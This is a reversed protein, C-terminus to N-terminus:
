FPVTMPDDDAPGPRQDAHHVDNPITGRGLRGPEYNLTQINIEWVERTQGTRPDDYKRQVIRGQLAITDGAAVQRCLEASKGWAVCNFYSEYPKDAFVERIKIRITGKLKGSSTTEVKCNEVLGGLVVCNVNM